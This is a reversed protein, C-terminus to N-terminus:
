ALDEFIDDFLEDASAPELPSKTEEDAGKDTPKEAITQPSPASSPKGSALTQSPAVAVTPTPQDTPSPEALVAAPLKQRDGAYDYQARFTLPGITFEADPPLPSEKIRRGDLLTGNLSGCDRIMLLGDNEFLECHHRSIMPHAIKLGADHGRGIMLPLKLAIKKKNAKGGVVLLFAEMGEHYDLFVCLAVPEPTPILPRM